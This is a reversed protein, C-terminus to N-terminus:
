RRSAIIMSLLVLDHCQQGHREALILRSIQDHDLSSVNQLVFHPKQGEHMKMSDLLPMCHCAPCMHKPSTCPIRLLKLGKNTSSLILQEVALAINYLSKRVLRRVTAPFMTDKKTDKPGQHDESHM